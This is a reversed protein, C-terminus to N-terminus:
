SDFIEEASVEELPQYVTDLILRKDEASLSRLQDLSVNLKQGTGNNVQIYFVNKEMRRPDEVAAPKEGILEHLVKKAANWNKYDDKERCRKILEIQDKIQWAQWFNWDFTHRSKFVEKALAIDKRLQSVSVRYKERLLSLVAADNPNDDMMQAASLVRNYQAQQDPSLPSNDPDLVHAMVAEHDLEELSKQGKHYKM